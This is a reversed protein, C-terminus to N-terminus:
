AVQRRISDVVADVSIGNMCGHDVPCERLFCPRCWVPHSLVELRSAPAAKAGLAEAGSPSLRSGGERSASRRRFALPSLDGSTNMLPYSGRENTPGFMATVPVGVAAALHTAGSDHGIFLRCHSLVGALTHLDTEGVLNIVGSPDGGSTDGGIIERAVAADAATGIIVPTVDLERRARRVLEAFRPVPWRKASGFIAGPAIGVLSAGERAGHRALLEGARIRVADPVKVRAELPVDSTVGLARVLDLYYEGFHRFGQPVPVARTLLRARGDRRYGWREPIAARRALWASRFSNPLLIALDAGADALRAVTERGSWRGAGGRGPLTVVRDIGDVLEFVPAISSRAAVMLTSAAFHRRLATIAPLAFMADGLWNPALVLVRM